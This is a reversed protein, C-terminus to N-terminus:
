TKNKTHMIDSSKIMKTKSLCNNRQYFVSQSMQRKQLLGNGYKQIELHSRQCFMMKLYKAHKFNDQPKAPKDSNKAFLNQNSTKSLRNENGRHRSLTKQCVSLPAGTYKDMIQGKRWVIAFFLRPCLLQINPKAFICLFMFPLGLALHVEELFLKKKVSQM